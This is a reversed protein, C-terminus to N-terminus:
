LLELGQLFSPVLGGAAKWMVLFGAVREAVVAFGSAEFSLNRPFAPWCCSRWWSGMGSVVKISVSSIVNSQFRGGVRQRLLGDIAQARPLLGSM